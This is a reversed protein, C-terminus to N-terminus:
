KMTLSATRLVGTRLYPTCFSKRGFPVTYFPPPPSFTGKWYLFRSFVSGGCHDFDVNVSLDHQNSMDKFRQKTETTMRGLGM